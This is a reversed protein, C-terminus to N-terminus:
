RRRSGRVHDGELGGLCAHIHRAAARRCRDHGDRPRWWNRCCVFRGPLCCRQQQGYRATPVKSDNFRIGADSGPGSLRCLLSGRHAHCASRAHGDAACVLPCSAVKAAAGEPRAHADRRSAEGGGEGDDVRSGGRWAPSPPFLRSHHCLGVPAPVAPPVPPYLGGISLSPRTSSVLEQSADVNGRILGAGVPPAVESVLSRNREGVLWIGASSRM